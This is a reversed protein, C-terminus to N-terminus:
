RGDGAPHRFTGRRQVDADALAPLFDAGIADRSYDAAAPESTGDRFRRSWSDFRPALELAVRGRPVTLPPFQAELVPASLLLVALLFAAPRTM